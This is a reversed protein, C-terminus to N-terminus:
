SYCKNLDLTTIETSSPRAQAELLYILDSLKQIQLFSCFVIKLLSWHFNGKDTLITSFVAFHGSYISHSDDFSNM